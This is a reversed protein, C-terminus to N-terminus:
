KDRCDSTKRPATKKSGEQPGKKDFYQQPDNCINHVTNIFEMHICTFIQSIYYKHIDSTAYLMHLYTHSTKM